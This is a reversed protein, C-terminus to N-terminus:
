TQSGVIFESSLDIANHQHRVLRHIEAPQMPHCVSYLLVAVRQVELEIISSFENALLINLTCVM